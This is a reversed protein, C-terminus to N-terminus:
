PDGMGPPVAGVTDAGFALVFAARSKELEAEAAAIRRLALDRVAGRDYDRTPRGPGPQSTTFPVGATKLAAKARGESLGFLHAVQPLTM